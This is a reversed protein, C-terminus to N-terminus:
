NKFDKPQIWTDVLVEEAEIRDSPDEALMKSILYEIGPHM